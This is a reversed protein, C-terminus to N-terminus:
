LASPSINPVKRSSLKVGIFVGNTIKSPTKSLINKQNLAQKFNILDNKCAEIILGFQLLKPNIFSADTKRFNSKFRIRSLFKM